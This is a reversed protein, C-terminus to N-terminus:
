KYINLSGNLKGTMRHIGGDMMRCIPGTYMSGFVEDQDVCEWGDEHM